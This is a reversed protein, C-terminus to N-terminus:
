HSAHGTHATSPVGSRIRSESDVLFTARSVVKEGASLGSLVVARGGSRPGLAVERPEFIGESTEVFAVQRVGTDIVADVDVTLRDATDVAISVTAYQGPKLRGDANPVEIRVRVTRTADSLTPPVFAIRGTITEGPSSPLEITAEAGAHVLSAEGEHLDAVVWVASLDTVEYLTTGPEVRMGRVAERRTVTGGTRALVPTAKEPAGRAELEAIQAESMDWLVLRERASQVVEDTAPLAARVALYTRQAEYLEPSYITFLADGPRITEGTTRVRVDEIWGGYRLSTASLGREDVEVRASARLARVFPGMAVTETALGIRRQQVDPIAVTARGPVRNGGSAPEDDPVRVLAMSCIPCSGPRDSRYSPHMPCAYVAPAHAGHAAGDPATARTCAPAFLSAAIALAISLSRQKM